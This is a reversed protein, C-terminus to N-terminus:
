RDEIAANIKAIQATLSDLEDLSPSAALRRVMAAHAQQALFVRRILSADEAKHMAAVEARLVQALRVQVAGSAGTAQATVYDGHAAQVVARQALAPDALIDSAGVLNQAIEALVPDADAMVRRLAAVRVQDSLFGATSTIVPGDEKAREALSAFRGEGDSSLGSLAAVLAASQKEVEESSKANALEALGAFYGEMVTLARLTQTANVPGKLPKARDDVDCDSVDNSLDGAIRALCDGPLIVITRGAAAAQQDAMALERKASAELSPGAAERTKSLLTQVEAIDSSLDPATCGAAVIAPLLPVLRTLARSVAM